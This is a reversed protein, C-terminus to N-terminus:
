SVDLVASSLNESYLSLLLDTLPGLFMPDLHEITKHPRPLFYGATVVAIKKIFAVGM